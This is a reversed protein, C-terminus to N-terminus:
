LKLRRAREELKHFLPKEDARKPADISKWVADLKKQLVVIRDISDLREELQKRQRQLEALEERLEHRSYLLRRLQKSANVVDEGEILPQAYTASASALVVFLFKWRPGNKCFKAMYSNVVCTLM